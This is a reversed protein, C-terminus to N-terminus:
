PQPHMPLKSALAQLTLASLPAYTYSPSPSITHYAPQASALGSMQQHPQTFAYSTSQGSYANSTLPAYGDSSSTGGVYIWLPHSIAGVISTAHSAGQANAGGPRTLDPIVIYVYSSQAYILDYRLTTQFAEEEIQSFHSVFYKSIHALLTRLFWDLYVRDEFPPARCM